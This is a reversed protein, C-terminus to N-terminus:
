DPVHRNEKSELLASYRCYWQMLFFYRFDMSKQLFYSESCQSYFLTFNNNIFVSEVKKLVMHPTNQRKELFNTNWTYQCNQGGSNPSKFLLFIFAIIIIMKQQILVHNIFYTDRSHDPFTQKQVPIVSKKFALWETNKRRM